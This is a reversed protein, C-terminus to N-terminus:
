KSVRVLHYQLGSASKNQLHLIRGGRVVEFQAYFIETADKFRKTMSIDWNTVTLKGKYDITYATNNGYVSSTGIHKSSYSLDSNFTFQDHSQTSNMGAYNGTYTNYLGVSSSSNEEWTGVLDPAAVAFKNYSTM